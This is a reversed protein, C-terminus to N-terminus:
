SSKKEIYLQNNHQLIGRSLKKMNATADEQILQKMADDLTKQSIQAAKINLNQNRAVRNSSNRVVSRSVNAAILDATQVTSTPPGNSISIPTNKRKIQRFKKQITIASNNIKNARQKLKNVKDQNHTMNM